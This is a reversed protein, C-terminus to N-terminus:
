YDTRFDIELEGIKLLEQSKVNALSIKLTDTSLVGDDEYIEMLPELVFRRNLMEKHPIVLSDLNIINDSYYIIDIDIIRPGKPRLPDKIRGMETEIKKITSLLELEDLNDTTFKAVLNYFDDQELDETPKSLYLNSIKILEMKSALSSLAEKLFFESPEINSGLSLYVSKNKFSNM